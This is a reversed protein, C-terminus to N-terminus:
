NIIAENFRFDIRYTLTAQDHVTKLIAVLDVFKNATVYKDLIVQVQYGRPYLILDKGFANIESILNYIDYNNTKLEYLVSRLYKTYDNEIKENTSTITLGTIYPVDYNYISSNRIIYGDDTIEYIGNKSEALFLTEREKINVILLDPFSIKISEVQLRINKEIRQKIEKKPILFLSKNNYDSLNAEEIITIPAILKLGRIEVRLVKAKNFVFIIGVIFIILLFYLVIKKILKKQKQNLKNKQLKKRLKSENFTKNKM